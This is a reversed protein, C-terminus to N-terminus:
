KCERHAKISILGESESTTVEWGWLKLLAVIERGAKRLYDPIHDYEFTVSVFEKRGRVFIGEKRGFDRPSRINYGERRLKASIHSATRDTSKNGSHRLFGAM